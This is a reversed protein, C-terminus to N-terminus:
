FKINNNITIEPADAGLFKLMNRTSSSFFNTIKSWIKNVFNGVKKVINDLFQAETLLGQALKNTEEKTVNVILSIVSWFNYEGTKVKNVKRSSSKFRAQLRMKNAIYECYSDDNVDHISIFSGKHDSVLMWDAAAGNGKGFKEYGSMAERAFEIKFKPSKEFLVGLKNMCEKHAKEGQNVLENEGSQILPAINSPALGRTIFSDLVVKADKFEKTEVLSKDSKELATMFTALSESQGGSMLQANGIKLSFNMNGIKIDTKPTPNSAGYSKWKSTVSTKTRGYVEATSNRLSPYKDWLKDAINQGAQKLDDYKDVVPHSFDKEQLVHWGYVIAAEFDEAKYAESLEFRTDVTPLVLKNSPTNFEYFSKM